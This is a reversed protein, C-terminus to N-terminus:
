KQRRRRGSAHLLVSALAGLAPVDLGGSCGCGPRVRGINDKNFGPGASGADEGEATGADGPLPEVGADAPPPPPPTGADLPASCDRPLVPSPVADCGPGSLRTDMSGRGETAQAFWTRFQARYADVKAVQASTPPTSGDAVLVFAVRWCKQSQLADPVRPGNARVIDEIAVEVGTGAVSISQGRPTSVADSGHGSGDDVALLPPVECASRLGMLYQDLPGYGRVGGTFTYTGSSGPPPGGQLFSGYMVSHSDSYANYHNNPYSAAPDEANEAYGRLLDRPGQGDAKDYNVSFLWHHGYEHGLLEMGTLGLPLGFLATAPGDPSDPLKGLAGMFVCQSLRGASGYNAPGGLYQWGGRGIGQATGRVPTGQQVNEIDNLQRTTFAVVGDYHDAHSEYFRRAAAKCFWSQLAEFGAPTHITGTTDQLVAVDGMDQASAPDTLALSLVAAAAAARLCTM